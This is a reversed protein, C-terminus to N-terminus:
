LQLYRFAGLNHYPHFVSSATLLIWSFFSLGVATGVPALNGVPPEALLGALFRGPLNQDTSTATDKFQLIRAGWLLGQRLGWERLYWMVWPVMPSPLALDCPRGLVAQDVLAGAGGPEWGRRKWWPWKMLPKMLPVTQFKNLIWSGFDTETNNETILFLPFYDIHGIVSWYFLHLM